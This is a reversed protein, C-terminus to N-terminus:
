RKKLLVDVCLGVRVESLVEAYLRDLSCSCEPLAKELKVCKLKMLRFSIGLRRSIIQFDSYVSRSDPSHAAHGRQQHWGDLHINRLNTRANTKNAPVAKLSRWM